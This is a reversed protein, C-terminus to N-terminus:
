FSDFKKGLRRQRTVTQDLLILMGQEAAKLLKPERGCDISLRLFITKITKILQKTRV